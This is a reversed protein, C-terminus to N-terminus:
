IKTMSYRNKALFAHAQRQEPERKPQQEGEPEGREEEMQATTQRGVCKQHHPYRQEQFFGADIGSLCTTRLSKCEGFSSKVSPGLPVVSGDPFLPIVMSLRTRRLITTVTATTTGM